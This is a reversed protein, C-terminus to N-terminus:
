INKPTVIVRKEFRLDIAALTNPQLESYISSLRQLSQQYDLLSLRIELPSDASFITVNELGEIRIKRIHQLLPHSTQILGNIAYLAHQLQPSGNELDAEEIFTGTIIPLRIVSGSALSGLVVGDQDILRLEDRKILAFPTRETLHISLKNPFNRFVDANKVWTMSELKQQIDDLRVRFINTHPPINLHEAIAQPTIKSHGRIGLTAVEFM